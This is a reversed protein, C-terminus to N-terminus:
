HGLTQARDWREQMVPQHSRPVMEHRIGSADLLYAVKPQGADDLFLCELTLGHDSAADLGAALDDVWYGLHHFSMPGDSRLYGGAVPQILELHHPGEASYVYRFRITREEDHVRIRLEHDKPPTWYRQGLGVLRDRLEELDAVLYGSHYLDAPRLTM